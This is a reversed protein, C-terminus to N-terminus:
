GGARCSASSCSCNSSCWRLLRHSRVGAGQWRQRRAARCLNRHRHRLVVIVMFYYQLPRLFSWVPVAGVAVLLTATLAGGADRVSAAYSRFRDPDLSTPLLPAYRPGPWATAASSLYTWAPGLDGLMERMISRCLVHIGMGMSLGAYYLYAARAPASHIPGLRRNGARDPHNGHAGAAATSSSTFYSRMAKASYRHVSCASSVTRRISACRWRRAPTIRASRCISRQSTRSLPRRDDSRLSRHAQWRPVSGYARTSTSSSFCRSTCRRASLATDQVM